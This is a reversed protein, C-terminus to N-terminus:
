VDFFFLHILRSDEVSDSFDNYSSASHILKADWIVLRNYVSGIKDVLEWNDGHTINYSSFIHSNIEYLEQNSFIEANTPERRIKYKRDRWFSTGSNVSNNKSLYIAAAYSQQDCHWVLPDKNNTIQFVGNARHNLWNKIEVGLLKEFKEKLLPFLIKAETRKGKYFKINSQYDQMLALNRVEDPNDYFNDVVIISPRGDKYSVIKLIEKFNYNDLMERSVKIWLGYSFKIIYGGNEEISDIIGPGMLTNVTTGISYCDM